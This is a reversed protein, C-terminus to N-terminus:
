GPFSRVPFYVGGHSLRRWMANQDLNLLCGLGILSECLKGLSPDQSSFTKREEKLDRSAPLSYAIVLVPCSKGLMEISKMPAIPDYCPICYSANRSFPITQTQIGLLM